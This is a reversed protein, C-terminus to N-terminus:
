GRTAHSISAMQEVLKAPEAARVLAEGVLVADYGADAMRQADAATRVASEAVAVCDAPIERRVRESITLDEGFDRLNRNTVGILTAGCELAREVGAEDDAEVLVSLGLEAGQERLASLRGQDPIGAVILLMADAGIAATELVQIDDVVFDKRLVPLDTEKRAAILDAIRGDFYPENTLVSLAKAGGTQYEVAQKAADLNECLV